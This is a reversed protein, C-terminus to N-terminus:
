SEDSVAFESKAVIIDALCPGVKSTRPIAKNATTPWSSCTLLGKLSGGPPPEPRLSNLWGFNKTVRWPHSSFHRDALIPLAASGRRRRRAKENRAM